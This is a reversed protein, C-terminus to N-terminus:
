RRSLKEDGKMRQRLLSELELLEKKRQPKNGCYNGFSGDSKVVRHCPILLPWPNKRLASGVARVALPKGIKRAIWQYSRTEGFPIELTTQLVSIEFPTLKNLQNQDRM